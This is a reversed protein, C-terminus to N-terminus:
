RDRSIQSLDDGIEYYEGATSVWINMVTKLGSTEDLSGAAVSITERGEVRWFLSSGCRKCFGRYVNGEADDEISQYWKLGDEKSFSLNEQAVSTYAGHHGHMRLCMPCHCNIIDRLAGSVEYRVASCLCGGTTKICNKSM